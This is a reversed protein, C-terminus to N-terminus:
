DRHGYWEVANGMLVSCGNPNIDCNPWAPCGVHRDIKEEKDKKRKELRKLYRVDKLEKNIQIHTYYVMLEEKTPIKDANIYWFIQSARGM